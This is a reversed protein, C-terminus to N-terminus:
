KLSPLVVLTKEDEMRLRVNSEELAIIVSSLKVNRSIKGFFRVDPVQGKYVVNVDYWRALQRMVEELGVGQFNFVGNKWAIVKEVDVNRVLELASTHNDIVAQEGPNSLILKTNKSVSINGHLLTTRIAKEDEYANINFATGLVEILNGNPLKISFPANKNSAVEFYAEGKVSVERKNKEFAVPFSLSSAANLWVRTGDPLDVQYFGQKPTTVTNYLVEGKAVGGEYALKGGDMKLVKTDGQQALAGNAASDLMITSGDSLTLLAKNGGPLIEPINSAPQKQSIGQQPKTAQYLYTVAGAILLLIAAYRFWGTKVFHLPHVPPQSDLDATPRDIELIMQLASQLYAGQELADPLKVNRHQYFDDLKEVWEQSLENLSWDAAKEADSMTANREDIRTLVSLINSEKSAMHYIDMGPIGPM